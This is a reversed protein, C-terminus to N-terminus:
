WRAIPEFWWKTEIAALRSLVKKRDKWSVYAAIIAAIGGVGLVGAAQGATGDTTDAIAICLAMTGGIAYGSTHDPRNLEEKLRGREIADRAREAAVDFGFLTRMLDDTEDVEFSAIVESYALAVQEAAVVQGRLADVQADTLSINNIERVLRRFQEEIQFPVWDIALAEEFSMTERLTQDIIQARRQRESGAVEVPENLIARALCRVDTALQSFPYEGAM